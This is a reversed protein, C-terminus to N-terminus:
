IEEVEYGKLGNRELVARGAYVSHSGAWLKKARVVVCVCGQDHLACDATGNASDFKRTVLMAHEDFSLKLAFPVALWRAAKLRLGIHLKRTQPERERKASNM